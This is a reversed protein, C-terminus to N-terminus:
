KWTVYQDMRVETLEAITLEAGPKGIKPTTETKIQAYESTDLILHVPLERKVYTDDMTLGKLHNDKAVM